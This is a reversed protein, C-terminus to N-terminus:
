GLKLSFQKFIIYIMSYLFMGCFQSHRQICIPVGDFPYDEIKVFELTECWIEIGNAYVYLMNWPHLHVKFEHMYCERDNIDCKVRHPNHCTIHLLDGPLIFLGLKVSNDNYDINCFINGCDHTVGDDTMDYDMDECITRFLDLNIIRNEANPDIVMDQRKFFEQTFDSNENMWDNFLADLKLTIEDSLKEGSHGHKWDFEPIEKQLLELPIYPDTNADVIIQIGLDCYHRPKNSGAQDKGSYPFSQFQGKMVIGPHKTDVRMMYFYDYRDAQSYDYVSWNTTAYPYQKCMLAWDADTCSSIDPNWRLLFTPHPKRTRVM